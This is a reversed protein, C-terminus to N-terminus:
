RLDIEDAFYLPFDPGCIRSVEAKTFPAANLIVPVAGLLVSDMLVSTLSDYSLVFRTAKLLTVYEENTEPWDRKILVTQYITPCEANYMWGKGVYTLNLFRDHITMQEAQELDIKGMFQTLVFDPDDCFPAHYALKFEGERAQGKNILFGMKNLYYRAVNLSEFYECDLNEGHIVIHEGLGSLVRPILDKDCKLFNKGDFCAVFSGDVIECQIVIAKRGTKQIAEALKWLSKIGASKETYPAAFIVYSPRM